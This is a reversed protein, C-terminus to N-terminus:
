DELTKFDSYVAILTKECPTIKCSTIDIEAIKYLEYDDKYTCKPDKLAVEFGRKASLDNNKIDLPSYADEVKNYITYIGAM